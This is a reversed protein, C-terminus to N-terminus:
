SADCTVGLYFDTMQKLQGVTLDSKVRNALCSVIVINGAVYGKAPDLRDVSPTHNRDSWDLPIGLAPCVEPIPYDERKADFEWGRARARAALHNWHVHSFIRETREFEKVRRVHRKVTARIKDGHKKYAKRNYGNVAERHTRAWEKQYGNKDFM